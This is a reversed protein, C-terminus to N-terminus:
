KTKAYPFKFVFLRQHWFPDLQKGATNYAMIWHSCQQIQVQLLTKTPQNWPLISRLNAISSLWEANCSSVQFGASCYQSWTPLPHSGSDSLMVVVSKSHLVSTLSCKGILVIPLTGVWIHVWNYNLSFDSSQVQVTWTCGATTLSLTHEWILVLNLNTCCHYGSRITHQYWPPLQCQLVALCVQQCHPPLSQLLPLM